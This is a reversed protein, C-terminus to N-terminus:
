VAAPELSREAAGRRQRMREGARSLRRMRTLLRERAREAQPSLGDLEPVKWRRLVTPVLVSDHHILLDYIGAGAIARAHRTFDTIGTGPMEFARVQREIACVTPSPDIALAAEVLDRYFLYHLNEDAAVRAMIDFGTTDGLAKGTNRHAVRTALEQLAVYVLGEIANPPEPVVRGCVQQMRARELAVPDVQRTVTLYDRLVISHRGEEATWRRSWEGWAGDAGFLRDITHFYYPLNDETLLNVLLASRVGGPVPAAAPDWEEGPAFDRGQSWPVLLHPFWEKSLDLHRDLLAEVTPTLEHLLAADTLAM